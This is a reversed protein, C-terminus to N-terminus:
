FYINKLIKKKNDKNLCNLLFVTWNEDVSIM